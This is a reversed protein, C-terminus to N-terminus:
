NHTFYALINMHFHTQSLLMIKNTLDGSTEQNFRM